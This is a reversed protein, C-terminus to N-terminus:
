RNSGNDTEKNSPVNNLINTFIGVADALKEQGDQIVQQQRMAELMGKPIYPNQINEWTVQKKYGLSIAMAELLKDQAQQIQQRQMENPDQICLATYYDKWKTRVDKDDAFVIDIVNLAKVSEYTWGMRNTMLTKFIQMKDRRKESSIQMWHGVVVVFIPIVIIALLNLIDKYEM